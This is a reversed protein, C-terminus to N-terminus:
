GRVPTSTGSEQRIIGGEVTASLWAALSILADLATVVGPQLVDTRVDHPTVVVDDFALRRNPTRIRVDPIVVQGGNAELRGVEERFTHYVAEVRDEKERDLRIRMNNKYPYHDMRFVNPEFWGASYHANHWWGSEGNLADIVHTDMAEDFHYDLAILGKESLHVLVDFM